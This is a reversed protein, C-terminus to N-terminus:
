KYQDNIWALLEIFLAKRLGLYKWMIFFAVLENPKKDVFSELRWVNM